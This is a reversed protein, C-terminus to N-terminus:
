EWAAIIFFDAIANGSQIVYQVSMFVSEEISL